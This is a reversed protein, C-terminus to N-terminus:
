KGRRWVAGRLPPGVSMIEHKFVVSARETDRVLSGDGRERQGLVDTVSAFFM